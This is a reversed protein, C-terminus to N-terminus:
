KCTIFTNTHGKTSLVKTVRVSGTVGKGDACADVFSQGAKPLILLTGTDHNLIYSVDHREGAYALGAPLTLTALTLLIAFTKM